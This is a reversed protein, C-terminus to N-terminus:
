YKVFNIDTKKTFYTTQIIRKLSKRIPWEGERTSLDVIRRRPETLGPDAPASPSSVGHASESATPALEPPALRGRNKLLTTDRRNLYRQNINASNPKLPIVNITTSLTM